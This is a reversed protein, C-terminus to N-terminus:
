APNFPSRELLRLRPAGRGRSEVVEAVEFDVVREAGAFAAARAPDWDIAARGTLQLTDGRAFDLFLLGARGDSHLNGLTQFMRNGPYDPWAIRRADLVQVFGPNGGRHSADPGTEGHVSAVFFTDAEVIWRRQSADLMSGRVITAPERAAIESPEATRAQIYKPCNGFVERAVIEFGGQGLEIAGNLRMRKRTSLEIVLLGLAAGDRLGEALPDGASPLARVRLREEGVAELFGRPGTLLSAWVAGREDAGAAVALEREALFSRAAPAITAHIGGGVKRAMDRVGAREQVAIEGPHFPDKM